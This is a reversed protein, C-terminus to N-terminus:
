RLQHRTASLPKLRDLDSRRRCDLSREASRSARRRRKRCRFRRLRRQRSSPAPPLWFLRRQLCILAGHRGAQPGGTISIDLRRSGTPCAGSRSEPRLRRGVSNRGDDCPWRSGTADVAPWTRAWRVWDLQNELTVASRQVDLGVGISLGDSVRIAGAARHQRGGAQQRDRPLPRGM